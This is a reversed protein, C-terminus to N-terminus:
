TSCKWPASYDLPLYKLDGQLHLLHMDRWAAIDEGIGFYKFCDVAESNQNKIFDFTANKLFHDHYKRLWEHKELIKEKIKRENEEESFPTVYATYFLNNKIAFGHNIFFPAVESRYLGDVALRLYDVFLVDDGGGRFNTTYAELIDNDAKESFSEDIIIRPYKAVNGELKYAKVLGSGLVFDDEKIISGHCLAGRLFIGFDSLKRQWGAAIELLFKYNSKTCIIINDSFMKFYIKRGEDLTRNYVLNVRKTEDLAWKIFTSLKIVQPSNILNEGGLVDMYLIFNDEPQGWMSKAM